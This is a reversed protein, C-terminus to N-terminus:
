WAEDHSHVTKAHTFAPDPQMVSQPAPPFPCQWAVLQLSGDDQFELVPRCSNSGVQEDGRPENILSPDAGTDPSPAASALPAAQASGDPAVGYACAQLSCTLAVLSLLLKKNIM